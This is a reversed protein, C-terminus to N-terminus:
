RQDISKKRVTGFYLFALLKPLTRTQKIPERNILYFMKHHPVQRRLWSRETRQGRSRRPPRVGNGTRKTKLKCVDITSGGGAFPDIVIDFPDTYLYLLNDVWRSESNGFHSSDVTKTKQKWVNYIPSQFDADAFDSLVKLGKPLDASISLVIDKIKTQHINEEEAIEEETWCALWREFIRQNRRVDAV